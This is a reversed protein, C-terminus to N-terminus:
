WSSRYYISLGKTILGKAKQIFKLDDNLYCYYTSEQNLECGACYSDSGFFFRTTEPLNHAIVDNELNTIDDLTLPLKQDKFASAWTQAEETTIVGGKAVWLNEMWGQLRDHKRWFAIETDNESDNPDNEIFAYQDLEM